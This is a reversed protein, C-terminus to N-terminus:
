RTSSFRAFFSRALFSCFSAFACPESLTRSSFSSGDSLRAFSFHHTKLHQRTQPYHHTQPAPPHAVSVWGVVDCMVDNEYPPYAGACGGYLVLMQRMVTPRTLTLAGATGGGM